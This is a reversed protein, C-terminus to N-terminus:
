RIIQLLIKALRTVEKRNRVSLAVKLSEKLFLPNFFYQQGFQKKLTFEKFIESKFRLIDEDSCDKTLNVNVDFDWEKIATNRKISVLGKEMAEDYLKTGPFPTTVSFGYFDLNLEEAFAITDRITEKSDNLMGIMFYGATKLKAEKTWKVVQRVQELTIGKNLSKLIQQNGSEIGYAVGRCGADYMASLLDKQMLNVRGNCDWIVELNREKLLKAFDFVRKRDFVFTDDNFFFGNIRYKDHLFEMEDVINKASRGRWKSGWMGKFCFTCNYPCGRSSILNTSRIESFGEIKYGFTEFHNKIYKNIDLLHRAPFPISDIDTIKSAPPTLVVEGNQKFAIGKVKSLNTGQEIAKLLIPTTKEGEGVVIFDAQTLELLEKPMTTALPGGLIIKFFPSTERAMNILDIVKQYETIMGTIGIIDFNRIRKRIEDLSAKEVNLDIISLFHGDKELVAAIYTIGLPVWINPNWERIKPYILCVKM